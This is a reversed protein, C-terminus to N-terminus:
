RHNAWNNAEKNAIIQKAMYIGAAHIQDQDIGRDYTGDFASKIAFSRIAFM